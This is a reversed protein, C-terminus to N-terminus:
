EDLENLIATRSNSFGSKFPQLWPYRMLLGNCANRFREDDVTGQTSNYKGHRLEDILVGRDISELANMVQICFNQGKTDATTHM